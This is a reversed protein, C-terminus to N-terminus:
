AEEEGTVGLFRYEVRGPEAEPEHKAADWFDADREPTKVSLSRMRDDDLRPPKLSSSESASIRDSELARAYAGALYCPLVFATMIAAGALEQYWLGRDAGALAGLIALAFVFGTGPHEGVHPLNGCGRIMQRFM